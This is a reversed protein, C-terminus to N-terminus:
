FNKRRKFFLSFSLHDLIFLFMMLDLKPANTPASYCSTAPFIDSGFQIRSRDLSFLDALPRVSIQGFFFILFFLDPLPPLYGLKLWMDSYVRAVYKVHVSPVSCVRTKPRLSRVALALLVTYSWTWNSTQECFSPGSIDM